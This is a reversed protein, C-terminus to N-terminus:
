FILMGTPEKGIAIAKKEEKILNIKILLNNYNDGVYIYNKEKIIGRPMGGIYIRKLEKFSDTDVISITGDGFNSVFCLNKEYFMDVPARGLYIRSLFKLTKYSYASLSGCKDSGINSECVYIVTGDENFIAKTPFKGTKIHKINNTDNYDLITISDSLMNATLIIKELAMIELSHPLNGCPIEAETKKDLINFKVINNSDGCIVMANDEIVKVDNCHMGIFYNSLLKKKTLDILSLSNSFNDATLLNNKYSCIGHPGVKNHESNELYINNEEGFLDLNIKSISDSFTNCVYLNRM